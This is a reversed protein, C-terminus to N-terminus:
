SATINKIFFYVLHVSYFPHDVRFGSISVERVRLSRSPRTPYLFSIFPLRSASNTNLFRLFLIYRAFTYFQSVTAKMTINTGTIGYIHYQM